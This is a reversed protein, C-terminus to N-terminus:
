CSDHTLSFPKFAFQQNYTKRERTSQKWKEGLWDSERHKKQRRGRRRSMHKHESNQAGVILIHKSYKFVNWESRLM